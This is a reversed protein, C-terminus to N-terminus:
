QYPEQFPRILDIFFIEYPCGSLTLFEINTPKGNLISEIVERKKPFYCLAYVDKRNGLLYQYTQSLVCIWLHQYAADHLNRHYLLQRGDTELNIPATTVSNCMCFNEMLSLYKHVENGDWFFMGFPIVIILSANIRTKETDTLAQIGQIALLGNIAALTFQKNWEILRKEILYERIIMVMEMYRENWVYPVTALGHVIDIELLIFAKQIAMFIGLEVDHSKAEMLIQVNHFLLIVDHYKKETLYTEVLIMLADNSKRIADTKTKNLETIFTKPPNTSCAKQIIELCKEIKMPPPSM